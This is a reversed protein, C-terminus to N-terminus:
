NELEMFDVDPKKELKWGADGFAFYAKNAKTKNFNVNTLKAFPTLIKLPQLIILLQKIEAEM